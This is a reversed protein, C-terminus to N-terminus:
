SIQILVDGEIIEPPNVPIAANAKVWTAAVRSSEDAGAKDQCVTISAGVEGDWVVTYAVLGKVGKLLQEVEAKGRKLEDFLEAVGPGSYKRVMAHM